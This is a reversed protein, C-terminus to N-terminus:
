GNMRPLSLGYRIGAGRAALAVMVALVSAYPLDFPHLVTYTAAGCLAATAYIERHLVLPIENAIVDRIIGGAVATIVGMMLAVPISAAHNLAVTTGGVSFVALGVADAWVLLQSRAKVMRKWLMASVAAAVTLYLYSNQHIWFVPLDLMLDRLTGGGVAPMLALVLIGFVDMEKRIAMLAGSLAFVFVGLYDLYLLM